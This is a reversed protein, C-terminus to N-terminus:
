MESNKVTRVHLSPQCSQLLRCLGLFGPRRFACITSRPLWISLNSGIEGTGMRGLYARLQFKSNHRQQRKRHSWCATGWWLWSFPKWIRTSSVMSAASATLLTSQLLSKGVLPVLRAKLGVPLRLASWQGHTDFLLRFGIKGCKNRQKMDWTSQYPRSTVCNTLTRLGSAM